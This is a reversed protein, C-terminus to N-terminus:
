SAAGLPPRSRLSNPQHLKRDQELEPLKARGQRGAQDEAKDVVTQLRQAPATKQPGDHVPEVGQEVEGDKQGKREVRTPAAQPDKSKKPDGPPEPDPKRDPAPQKAPQPVPDQPCESPRESLEQAAATSNSFFKEKNTFFTNIKGSFM